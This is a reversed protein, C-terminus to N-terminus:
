REGGQGGCAEWAALYPAELEEIWGSAKRLENVLRVRECLTLRAGFQKRAAGAERAIQYGNWTLENM